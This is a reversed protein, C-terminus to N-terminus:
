SSCEKQPHVAKFKSRAGKGVMERLYPKNEFVFENELCYCSNSIDGLIKESYSRFLVISTRNIQERM